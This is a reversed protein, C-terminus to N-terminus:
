RTPPVRLRQELQQRWRAAERTAPHETASFWGPGPRHELVTRVWEPQNEQQYWAVLNEEPRLRRPQLEVQNPGVEVGPSPWAPDAARHVFFHNNKIIVGSIPADNYWCLWDGIFVNERIVINEIPEGPSNNILKIQSGNIGDPLHAFLNHQVTIPGMTVPSFALNQHSEFVLNNVFDVQSADGDFEIADDTCYAVQNREVVARNAGQGVQPSIRLADGGHAVLCDQVLLPVDTSAILTSSAYAAYVQNWSLWDRHWHYQPYNHYLCHSLRVHRSPKVGGGCKVGYTAGTFLCDRLEVHEANWINVAAGIGFDFQLGELQVHDAEIWLLASKFEGWERPAPAPRHTILQEQSPHRGGKLAVYLRQNEECFASWANPLAALQRLHTLGGWPLRFCNTDGQRLRYVPHQIATSFVGEGEDRWEWESPVDEPLQGTILVQGPITARVQVPSAKTGGRRLHLREFYIGPEIEISDGPRVLDFARQITALPKTATRGSNWDSGQKSVFLSTSTALAAWPQCIAAATVLPALVVALDFLLNCLRHKM